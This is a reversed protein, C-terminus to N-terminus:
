EDEYSKDNLRTITPEWAALDFKKGQIVVGRCLTFRLMARGLEEQSLLTPLDTAAIAKCQEVSERHRLDCQKKSLGLREVVEQECETGVSEAFFQIAADRNTPSEGYSPAAVLLLTAYGITQLGRKKM